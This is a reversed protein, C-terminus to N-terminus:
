YKYKYYIFPKKLKILFNKGWFNDCSKPPWWGSFPRKSPLKFHSSSVAFSDWTEEGINLNSREKKQYIKAEECLVAIEGGVCGNLKNAIKNFKFDDALRMNRTHIKLIELRDAANPVGIKVEHRFYAFCCLEQVIVDEAAAMVTVKLKNRRIETMVEQLQMIFRYARSSSEDIMHKTSPITDLNDIFLTSPEKTKAENFAQSLSLESTGLMIKTADIGIFQRRTEIIIKHAISKKATGEPGYLLINRTELYEEIDALQKHYGGIYNIEINMAEESPHDLILNTETAYICFSRPNTRFVKFDVASDGVRVLFEDGEHVPRDRRSEFYSKLATDCDEKRFNLVSFM